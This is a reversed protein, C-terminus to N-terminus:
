LVLRRETDTLLRYAGEPLDDELEFRGIKFRHLTLVEIQFHGFMRKIQHYRGETLIVEVEFPSIINLQAPQTTIDEYAFYIGANFAAVVADDVPKDLTVRYYKPVKKVSDNIGRSWQGDNTLLMLGTSNFDLRGVLHLGESIDQPLLDIVTTHMEDSTASVIGRPKHLVIYRPHNNQLTQGDVIVATFEGILQQVSTAYEADVLIRKQAVMLRVAGLATGMYKQIFRDLRYTKTKM